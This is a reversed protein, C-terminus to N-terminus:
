INNDGWLNRCKLFSIGSSCFNTDRKGTFDALLPSFNKMSVEQLKWM